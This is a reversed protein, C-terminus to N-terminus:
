GMEGWGWVQERVEWGFTNSVGTPVPLHKFHGVHHSPRSNTIEQTYFGRIIWFVSQLHENAGQM